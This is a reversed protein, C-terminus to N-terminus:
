LLSIILNDAMQNAPMDGAVVKFSDSLTEMMIVTLGAIGSPDITKLAEGLAGSKCATTLSAAVFGRVFGTAAGSLAAFGIKKLDEKDVEGQKVM